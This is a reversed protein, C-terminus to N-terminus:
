DSHLSYPLMEPALPASGAGDLHLSNTLGDATTEVLVCTRDAFSSVNVISGAIKGTNADVIKRGPACLTGQPLAALHTRRKPKGRYHLRAVVEQGTYCGKNFSIHGTLDYNLTQPIHERSTAAEVRAIGKALQVAHWESEAGHQMIEHMARHCRDAQSEHFYCEYEHGANDMQVLIFGDGVRADRIKGPADGFVKRLAASADPGWVATLQWDERQAELTAKSFVIYKGFTTSSPERIDRRMRLGYHEAGLAVLLFDCVVRGQPTCYAGLVAHEADVTRTDCTTQGQLFTLTDPGSIHLISERDLRSFQCNM